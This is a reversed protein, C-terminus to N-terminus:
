KVEYNGPPLVKTNSPTQGNQAATYNQKGGNEWFTDIALGPDNHYNPDNLEDHSTDRLTMGKVLKDLQDSTIPMDGGIVQGVTVNIKSLHCYSDNWGDATKITIYNGFDSSSSTQIVTGPKFANQPKRTDAVDSQWEQVHLHPGTVNGTAGTLGITVGSIVVPTGSPTPRDDGRHPHAVSYPSSTAGYPFTVPYTSADKM